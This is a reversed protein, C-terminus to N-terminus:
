RGLGYVLERQSKGTTPIAHEDKKRMATWSLPAVSGVEVPNLITERLILDIARMASADLKWGAIGDVAAIQAPRRAGWLAMTVGPQDLVWRLALELVRKGYHERAFQDLLEVARLYQANCPPQFKRDTKRLDDGQFVMAASMTGSLLGRCLSGYTLAMINNESLYPLVDDESQREFLNYPPQAFHLPAVSRFREIDAPSYNSVGIARIKGERYLQYMTEATEEVPIGPDPWHVQYVDIYDTQLRRLSDDVEKLIRARSANRLVLGKMWQLGVKTAIVVKDRCGLQAIAQGVIEESHGFGYVPASDLLNIGKALAAQITRISERDDAGGWMWGGMAWTGLGIRSVDLDIGPVATTEM